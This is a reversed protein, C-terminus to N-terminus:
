VRDGLLNVAAIVHLRASLAAAETAATQRRRQLRVQKMPGPAEDAIIEPEPFAAPAEAIAKTQREVAETIHPRYGSPPTRREM